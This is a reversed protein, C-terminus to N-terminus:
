CMERMGGSVMFGVSGLLGALVLATLIAGGAKDGGTAPKDRNGDSKPATGGANPKGKIHRRHQKNCPRPLPRHANSAHRLPRVNTPGRRLYRRLNLGRDLTRRLNSPQIRRRM